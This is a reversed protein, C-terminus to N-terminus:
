DVFILVSEFDDRDGLFVFGIGFSFSLHVDCELMGVNQLGSFEKEESFFLVQDDDKFVAWISIQVVENSLQVLFFGFFDHSLDGFSKKVEMILLLGRM